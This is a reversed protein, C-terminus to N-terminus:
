KKNSRIELLITWYFYPQIGTKPHTTRLKLFNSHFTTQNYNYLKQKLHENPEHKETLPKQLYPIAKHMTDTIGEALSVHSLLKCSNVIQRTGMNMKCHM